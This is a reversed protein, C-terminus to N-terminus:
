TGDTRFELLQYYAGSSLKDYRDTTGDADSITGSVMGWEGIISFVKEKENSCSAFLVISAFIVFISKFFNKM